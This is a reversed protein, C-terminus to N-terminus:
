KRFVRSVYQLFNPTISRWYTWNHAGDEIRYEHKYGIKNLLTHLNGYQVSLADDDGCCLYLEYQNKAKDDLAGFQEFADYQKYWEKLKNENVDPYRNKMNADAWPRVGASLGCCVAFMEPHHLAYNIAGGGGASAGAIARSAKETRVRYTKEIYPVFEEFFFQEFNFKGDADNYYSRRVTGFNADPTVVIMPTIEGSAIAQDMYQKLEGYYLWSQQNPVTGAPGAPHFLYLIPYTRESENYGAPLYVSYKREGGLVKSSLVKSDYVVGSNQAFASGTNMALAMLLISIIKKM